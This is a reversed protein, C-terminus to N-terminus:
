TIHHEAPSLSEGLFRGTRRVNDLLNEERIIRQFEVAGACAVPHSQYTHGHTFTVSGQELVDFVRRAVLIAGIPAYGGGLGKAIAQIDPPVDEQEWAQMTGTRGM